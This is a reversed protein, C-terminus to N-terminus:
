NKKRENKLREKRWLYCKYVLDQAKHDTDDTNKRHGKCIEICDQPLHGVFLVFYLSVGFIQISLNADYGNSLIVSILLCIM